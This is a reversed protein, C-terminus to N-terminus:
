RTAQPGRFCLEVPRIHPHRRLWAAVRATEWKLARQRVVPLPFRGTRSELELMARTWGTLACVADKGIYEPLKGCKLAKHTELPPWHRRAM